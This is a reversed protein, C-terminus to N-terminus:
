RAAVVEIRVGSVIPVLSLFLESVSAIDLASTAIAIHDADVRGRGITADLAIWEGVWVETWMHGVFSQHAHTLGAVVRAPVGAARALAALLVAHETCDGARSELVEKATAFATGLNKDRVAEHVWKELRCAARWGDTEDGVITRAIEAIQPDDSEIFVNAALFPALAPTPAVPRQVSTTPEVARVRVIWGSSAPDARLDHGAAGSAELRWPAARTALAPEETASNDRDGDGRRRIRYTIDRRRTPLPEDLPVSSSVFIEPPSAFDEALVAERTSRLVEIQMVPMASKVTRGDAGIWSTITIGPPVDLRSEIRRLARRSGDALEVEEIPGAVSHQEVCKLVDLSFVFQRLEDGEDGAGVLKEHLEREIWHPGRARPDFASELKRTPAGDSLVEIVLREGLVKGSTTVTNKGTRQRSEFATVGGGASERVTTSLETETLTGARSMRLRMRQFTEVGGDELDVERVFFYGAPKGLLRVIHWETTRGDEQEGRALPAPSVCGLLASLACLVSLRRARGM